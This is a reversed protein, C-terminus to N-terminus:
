LQEKLMRYLCEAVLRHGNQNWHGDYYYYLPPSGQQIEEKFTPSLDFYRIGEAQCFERLLTNPKEWDWEGEHEAMMPYIAFVEERLYENVQIHDPIGIIIFEIDHLIIEQQLRSLVRKTIEWAEEWRFDWIAAYTYYELPIGADGTSGRKIGRLLIELKPNGDVIRYYLFPIIKFVAGLKMYYPVPKPPIYELTNKKGAVFYPLYKRGNLVPSNEFIDNGFVFALLVMDPHYNVVHHQFVFYEHTTGFGGVGFNIVEFNISSSATKLKRELTQQYTDELPVHIAQTFSDGLVAIRYTNEPKTYSYEDDRLGQSNIIVQTRPIDKRFYIGEKNPIHWVGTTKDEQLFIDPTLEFIRIGIELLGLCVFVAGIFIVFNIIINKLIVASFIFSSM